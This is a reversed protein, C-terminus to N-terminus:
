VGALFKVGQEGSPNKFLRRLVLTLMGGDMHLWPCPRQCRQAVLWDTMRVQSKRASQADEPCAGTSRSARGRARRASRYYFCPSMCADPMICAHVWHPVQEGCKMVWLSSQWISYPTGTSWPGPGVVTHLREWEPITRWLILCRTKEKDLWAAKGALARPIM